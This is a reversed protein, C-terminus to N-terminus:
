QKYRQRIHAKIEGLGDREFGKTLFQPEADPDWFSGKNSAFGTRGDRASFSAVSSRPEGKLKGSAEHVYAAYDATYGVVGVIGTATNTVTRFGSNILNSTDIPTLVAAYGEGIILVEKVVTPTLDNAIQRLTQRMNRRVKNGGRIPM